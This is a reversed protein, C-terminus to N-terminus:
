RVETGAERATDNFGEIMKKTIIDKEEDKMGSSVSLIMLMNDCNV